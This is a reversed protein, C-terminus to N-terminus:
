AVFHGNRRAEDLAAAPSSYPALGPDLKPVLRSLREFEPIDGELAAIRSLARVNHATSYHCFDGAVAKGLLERGEALRGRAALVEGRTGQANPVDPLLDLSLASLREADEWEAELFHAWALSNYESGRQEPTVEMEPERIERAIALAEQNRGLQWLLYMRHLRRERTFERTVLDLVRLQADANRFDSYISTRIISVQEILRQSLEPSAKLWDLILQGDSVLQGNKERERFPLLNTFGMAVNVFFFTLVFQPGQTWALSLNWTAADRVAPWLLWAALLNAAPGGAAYLLGGIRRERVKKPLAVVMGGVASSQWFVWVPGIRWAKRLDGSGLHISLVQWGILWGMLLHGMEHIVTGPIELVIALALNAILWGLPPFIEVYLAACGVLVLLVLLFNRTPLTSLHRQCPRCLGTKRDRMALVEPAAGCRSCVQPNRRWEGVQTWLDVVAPLCVLGLLPFVPGSFSVLGAGLYVLLTILLRVRKMGLEPPDAPEPRPDSFEKWDVLEEQFGNQRLWKGAAGTEERAMGRLVTQSELVGEIRCLVGASTLASQLSSSFIGADGENEAEPLETHILGAQELVRFAGSEKERRFEALVALTSISGGGQGLTEGLRGLVAELLPSLDSM